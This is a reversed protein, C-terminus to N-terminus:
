CILRRSFSETARRPNYGIELTQTRKEKFKELVPQRNIVSLTFEAGDYRPLDKSGVASGQQWCCIRAAQLM